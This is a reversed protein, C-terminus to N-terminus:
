QDRSEEPPQHTLPEITVTLPDLDEPAPMQSGPLSAAARGHAMALRLQEAPEKGSDAAAIYGALSADGAGVTSRATIAPGSGILAEAEQEAPVLVAGHAGLTVLATRVGYHQVTRVLGVVASPDQELIEPATDTRQGTLLTHLELLEEANPKILDPQAPVSSALAQGSSDVAIKVQPHASRLAAILRAYLQPDAGPPLSGALAAWSTEPVSAAAAILAQQRDAGLEPGPENIKTTTGSPDTITINTRVASGLPVAQYPVAFASLSLLLPDDPESPIVAVTPLRAATLARSINVGKGGPDLRTTVARHVQGPLLPSPLEVTSDLSPNPTVTIIM